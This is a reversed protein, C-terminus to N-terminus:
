VAKEMRVACFKYEPTHTVPDQANITLLNIPSESFHFTSYVTGPPVIDGVSAKAEIRGRRSAVRIRDGDRIGLAAADQENVQVLCEPYRASPGAARRTMTGTHYHYLIRGTTLILPYQEDPLEAPPVWEIAHFAGKGRTFRDRHLYATGPHEPNPCPWQLGGAELRRYDMGHYSPTVQAVEDFVASADPYGMPVGMRTALDCLIEWDPRAQGPAPVAKRVRQVRRETNTFTGDVEAFCAAPLVVDAFAATENFFIDQVVLFDLNTLAKEVHSIDPDSLMTNEGMIYLGKVEGEIAQHLATMSTIGAKRSLGKMGWAEEMKRCAEESTVAQYGSYVAPLAGMDCAGQVNNQGRLPNVGCSEKGVKGCLMALNAVSKVADTGNVHETIGLTYAISAKEATAYLRAAEMLKERPIGAEAEVRDLTYSAVTAKLAEFGETREEVYARDYLGEQILYNMMGNLWIVDSGPRQRLWIAAHEVMDIRRPDAVILRAGGSRAARKMFTSIVPHAETTNSGVIFIVHAHEFEAISNTMAGSGFAAALGAV